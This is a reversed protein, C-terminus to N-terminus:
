NQPKSTLHWGGCGACQYCRLDPKDALLIATEAERQTNYRNKNPHTFCKKM